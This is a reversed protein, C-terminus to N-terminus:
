DKINNKLKKILHLTDVKEKSFYKKDLCFLLSCLFSINNQSEDYNYIGYRYFSEDFIDKFYTFDSAYQMIYVKNTFNNDLQENVLIKLITNYNIEM